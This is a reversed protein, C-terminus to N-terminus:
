TIKNQYITYCKPAFSCGLFAFATSIIAFMETVIAHKGQTSLYAPIFAIVVMLFFLMSYTIFRTENFSSDNNHDTSALCLCTTALIILYTLSCYAWLPSTLTCEIIIAGLRATTNYKVRPDSTTCKALMCTIAFSLMICPLMEQVSCLNDTPKGIFALASGFCGGLAVLFLLNVEFNNSNVLLLERRTYIISIVVIVLAIGILSLVLLTITVPDSLPLFEEPMPICADQHKTPWFYEPCHFCEQSDTENSFQVQPCAICDHCCLPKGIRVAKRTGRQCSNSCLSNPVKKTGDNWVFEKSLIRLQQEQPHSSDFIGVVKFDLVGETNEQWNMIEYVAPPDGNDDFFLTEANNIRFTVKKLYYLIALDCHAATGDQQLIATAKLGRERLQPVFWTMLDKEEVHSYVPQRSPVNHITDELQFVFDPEKQFHLFLSIKQSVEIIFRPIFPNRVQRVNEVLQVLIEKLRLEVIRERIKVIERLMLEVLKERIKVIEKLRLEVIRERIKVILRIRLEVIRERIKVIEKLRLEVIRERIKVILRLRLEVIKERIKVIEKLRLEVIRERIKCNVVQKKDSHRVLIYDIHSSNGISKNTLLHEEEKTFWPGNLDSSKKEDNYGGVRSGRAQWDVLMGHVLNSSENKEVHRKLPLRPNQPGDKGSKMVAPTVAKRRKITIGWGMATAQYADSPVTRLFSPYEKKESLCKCTSAFSVTAKVAKHTNFCTDYIIYGLSVNPLLLPNNNVEHIAFIMSM